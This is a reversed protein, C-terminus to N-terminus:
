RMHRKGDRAYRASQRVFRERAYTNAQDVWTKKQLRQIEYARFAECTKRCAGCPLRDPCDKVCPSKM